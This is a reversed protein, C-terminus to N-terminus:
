QMLDMGESGVRTNKRKFLSADMKGFRYSFNLRAVQPDRRGWTSQTFFESETYAGMRRTRFIDSMSLTLSAKRNFLDKRLAMDVFWNELSYGQASSGPGFMGGGFRGSNGTSPTFNARSRYEGSVQLTFQAPLKVSVNEKAFWSLQNNVLNTEVNTADLKSQYLNINSTLEVVKGLTNKLTFEMGYAQSSNSNAFSSVIVDAKQEPSYESFQYRTILDTARQYYASVLLNHGQSFIKQYSLELADTFEPRLDPNGRRLNLPDSVDTFPMLQFFNPRNIRRTYSFQINDEGGLKRTVFLSPFLSLPYDNSFSEQAEPLKGTYTSSEARLGVMYGWKPLQHSFTVYAAYVGDNFSYRDAFTPLLVWEDLSPNFLYNFNDNRFDRVSARLGTELKMKDNIPDVYDTQLTYFYSGGDNDQRQQMSLGSDLYNTTFNSGGGMNVQNVNLDATWEKGAKPFLHKFLVSGGFNRFTRENETNRIADSFTVNGDYLSDVHINITEEPKFSGRVMMGSFTLTNRNDVFWDLGARAMAFSGNMKSTGSQLFNTYPTGFFNERYTENEGKSVRQNYNASIFANIKGERANVDGGLNIGGRTDTGLRVNGNYGIRRDKKLVINIIGGQGGSADYKASPNSIVEVSEIADASIQDLTLTTPRGDVFLQPSANRMTVNGDLDVSLSPVNKLADVATGGTAMANKDVRFVKRDLALVASSAEATVVVENLVQAQEAISINGLDKDFRSAMASMGGNNANGAAPATGPRGGSTLGFSVKQEITAYGLFSIKLTFDGMVPLNELSFDGNEETIQGAILTEQMSRAATDYQMGMLQVTAYPVGKGKEDVVKGYFRGINMSAGQRGAPAGGPMQQASLGLFSFALVTLLLTTKRFFGTHRNGNIQKM